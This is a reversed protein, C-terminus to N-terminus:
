PAPLFIELADGEAIRANAKTAAGNRRVHEDEILKQARSRTLEAYTKALYADLREGEGNTVSHTAWAGPILSAAM